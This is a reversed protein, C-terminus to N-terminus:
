FSRATRLRGFEALTAAVVRMKRGYGCEICFAKKLEWLIWRNLDVGSEFVLTM